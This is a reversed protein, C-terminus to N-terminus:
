ETAHCGCGGIERLVQEAKTAEAPRNGRFDSAAIEHLAGLAKVLKGAMTWAGDDPAATDAADLYAKIGIRLGDRTGLRMIPSDSGDRERIVFGNAPGMVFIRGDRLDVLTNEIAVHALTLADENVDVM